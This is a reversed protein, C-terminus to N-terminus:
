YCPLILVAEVGSRDQRNSITLKGRHLEVAERAFCLGLGSSKRETGPRPLSYFRDFIRDLAYEPIGAGEDAVEVVVDGRGVKASFNVTGGPPSFDIANQILNSLATELLFEEGRVWVDKAGEVTFRIKKELGNSAHQDVIRRVLASM